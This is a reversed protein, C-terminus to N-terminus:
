GNTGGDVPTVRERVFKIGFISFGATVVGLVLEIQSSTWQLVDIANLTTLAAAVFAILSGSVAVYETSTGRRAHAIVSGVLVVASAVWTVMLTTQTGDWDVVGFGGLCAIVAGALVAVRDRLTNIRDNTM